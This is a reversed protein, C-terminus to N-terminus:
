FGEVIVDLAPREQKRHIKAEIAIVQKDDVFAVKNLADLVIKVYNDLDAAHQKMDEQVAITVKVAGAFGRAGRWHLRILDEYVQTEPPTYTRVKNGPLRQFRPRQKPQPRGEIHLTGLIV